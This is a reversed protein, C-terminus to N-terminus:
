FKRGVNVDARPPQGGLPRTAYGAPHPARRPGGRRLRDCAEILATMEAQTFERPARREARLSIARHREPRAGLHALFPKDTAM